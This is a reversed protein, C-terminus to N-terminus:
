YVHRANIYFCRIDHHSYDHQFFVFLRAHLAWFQDSQPKVAFLKNCIMKKEHSRSCSFCPLRGRFTWGRDDTGYKNQSPPTSLKTTPSAAACLPNFHFFAIHM